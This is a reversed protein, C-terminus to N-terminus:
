WVINGLDREAYGHLGVYVPKGGFQLGKFGRKQHNRLKMSSEFGGPTDFYGLPNSPVCIQLWNKNGWDNGYSRAPPLKHCKTFSIHNKSSSTMLAYLKMHMVIILYSWALFM